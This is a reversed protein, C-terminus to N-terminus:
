VIRLKSVMCSQSKCAYEICANRIIHFRVRIGVQANGDEGGGQQIATIQGTVNSIMADIKEVQETDGSERAAVAAAQMETLLAEMEPIRSDEVAQHVTQKCIIRLKSVMCSQSKGVNEIRANRIIHFRVRLM